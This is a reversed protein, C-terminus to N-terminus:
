KQNDNEAVLIYDCLESESAVSMMLDAVYNNEKTNSM